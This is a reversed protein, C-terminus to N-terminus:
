GFFQHTVSLCYIGVYLYIGCRMLPRVAEPHARAFRELPILAALTWLMKVLILPLPGAEAVPRMLPNAEVAWRNHFFIASSIGDALCLALLFLTEPKVDWRPRALVRTM